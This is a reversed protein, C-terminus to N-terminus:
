EYLLDSGGANIPSGANLQSGANIRPTSRSGRRRNSVRRRISVRRKNSFKRYLIVLQLTNFKLIKKEIMSHTCYYRIRTEDANISTLQPSRRQKQQAQCGLREGTGTQLARNDIVDYYHVTHSYALWNYLRCRHVRVSWGLRHRSVVLLLLYAFFTEFLISIVVARDIITM